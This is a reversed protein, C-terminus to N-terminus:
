YRTKENELLKNPNTVYYSYGKGETVKLVKKKFNM